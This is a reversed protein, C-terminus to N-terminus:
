TRDNLAKLLVLQAELGNENDRVPSDHFSSEHSTVASLNQVTPLQHDDKRIQESQLTKKSSGHSLNEVSPLGKHKVETLYSRSAVDAEIQEASNPGAVINWLLKQKVDSNHDLGQGMVCVRMANPLSAKKCLTDTVIEAPTLDQVNLIPEQYIGEPISKSTSVEIVNTTARNQNDVGDIEAAGGTSIIDSTTTTYVFRCTRDAQADKLGSDRCQGVQCCIGTSTDVPQGCKLEIEFKEALLTCSQDFKCQEYNALKHEDELCSDKSVSSRDIGSHEVPSHLMDFSKLMKFMDVLLSNISEHSTEIRDLRELVKADNHFMAKIASLQAM